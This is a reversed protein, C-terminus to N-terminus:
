DVLDRKVVRNMWTCIADYLAHGTETSALSPDGYHGYPTVERFDKLPGGVGGGYAPPRAYPVDDTPLPEELYYAVMADHNVLKPHHVMVRSTEGEGGHGERKKSKLLTPYIEKTVQLWNLSIAKAKGQTKVGVEQAAIEQIAANGGHGMVFAFRDFGYRFLNLCLEEMITQVLGPSFHITGPFRMKEPNNGFCMVPGTIANVGDAALKKVMLRCMYDAQINDSNLPLHPGHAEITGCPILVIRTNKSVEEVETWSMEPLAKPGRVEYLVEDM